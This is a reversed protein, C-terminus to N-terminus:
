TTLTRTHAHTHTHTNCTATGSIVSVTVTIDDQLVSSEIVEIDIPLVVDVRTNAGDEESAGRGLFPDLFRLQIM